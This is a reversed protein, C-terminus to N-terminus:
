SWDQQEDGRYRYIHGTAHIQRSRAFLEAESLGWTDLVQVLLQQLERAGPFSRYRIRLRALEVLNYDTQGERLIQEVIARDRSEQPHQQDPQPTM